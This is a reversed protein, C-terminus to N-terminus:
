SYPQIYVASPSSTCVQCTQAITYKNVESCQRNTSWSCSVNQLISLRGLIHESAGLHPRFNTLTCVNALAIAFNPDPFLETSALGTAITRQLKFSM